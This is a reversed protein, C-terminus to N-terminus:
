AALPGPANGSFGSAAKEISIRGNFLCAGPPKEKPFFSIGLISMVAM